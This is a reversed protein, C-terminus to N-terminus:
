SSGLVPASAASGSWRGLLILWGSSKWCSEGIPRCRSAIAACCRMSRAEELQEGEHGPALDHAREVLPPDSVIRPEGDVMKTLKSFATMSDRTHAKALTQDLRKTMRKKMQSQLETALEDIDLRSYWVDLVRMGAFQRMAARYAAVTERVISKREKASYGNERGAVEFGVALRKVDWEWPGPLTEDFDNLTRHRAV